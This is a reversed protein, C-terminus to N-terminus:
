DILRNDVAYRMLQANNDMNMKELIRTRYTSVTKSSLNLKTAIQTVTKASALMTFIQLERISLSEHPLKAGSGALTDALLGAVSASFYRSGSNAIRVANVVEEPACEKNLYGAAGDMIMRVAYQDESYSSLIVVPLKPQTIRLHGLLDVGGIGPMAIDLLVVDCSNSDLWKKADLGNNFDAVVKIDSNQEILVAMGRRVVTHDDAIVVRITKANM